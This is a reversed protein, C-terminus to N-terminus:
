IQSKSGELSFNSLNTFSFLIFPNVFHNQMKNYTAQDIQEENNEENIYNPSFMPLEYIVFANM